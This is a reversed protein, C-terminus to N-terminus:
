SIGKRRREPEIVENKWREGTVEEVEEGYRILGERYNEDELAAKGSPDIPAPGYEELTDYMFAYHDKIPCPRMWNGTKESSTKAGYDDQWKRIAAFFPHQRADELTKGEDYLDYVNVPAYPNFVCPTMNGNWDIYFYGGQKGASICGSSVEGSNWFDAIFLRDEKVAKRTEDFMALRQDPQVLMNLSQERGIPMYQFIWIYYAGLERMYHNFLERNIMEANHNFATISVGYPVGYNQLNQYAQMIKRYVGEGRRKDTEEEYGEVSIAPTINGLEAMRRATADDILTGNTYVLFYCDPHAEVMDLLNKGNSKYMFPEGGSIVTFWSGWLEKKERLIRDFTEADLKETSNDGANAYCGACNLNCAKTPSITLFGPPGEGHIEQYEKRKETQRVVANMLSPITRHVLTNKMIDKDHVEDALRNIADLVARGMYYQDYRVSMPINEMGLYYKKMQRQFIGFVIQRMWRNNAVLEVLGSGDSREIFEKLSPIQVWGAVAERVARFKTKNPETTTTM